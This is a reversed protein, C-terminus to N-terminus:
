EPGSNSHTPLFKGWSSAYKQGVNITTCWMYELEMVKREYVVNNNLKKM